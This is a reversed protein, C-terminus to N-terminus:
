ILVKQLRVKEKKISRLKRFLTVKTRFDGPKPRNDRQLSYTQLHLLNHLVPSIISVLSQTLLARIVYSQPANMYFKKCRFRMLTDQTYHELVRWQWCYLFISQQVPISKYRIYIEPLLVYKPTWTFRRVNEESKLWIQLKAVSTRLLGWYWTKRTDAWYSGRKYLRVPLCVSLRTHRLWFAM